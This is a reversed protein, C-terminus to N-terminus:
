KVNDKRDVNGESHGSQPSSHMLAEYMTYGGLCVLFVGYTLRLVNGSMKNAFFAGIWAGLFLCVALIIAARWDVNDNRYYEIVAGLGVPPLLVMLSTGTAMHQSYGLLYVLAPVILVGGGIGFVGSALGAFMGIAILLPM